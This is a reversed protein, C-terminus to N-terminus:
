DYATLTKPPTVLPDLLRRKCIDQSTKESASGAEQRKGGHVHQLQRVERLREQRDTPARTPCCFIAPPVLALGGGSWRLFATPVLLTAGLGTPPLLTAGSGLAALPGALDGLVASAHPSAEVAAGRPEADALVASDGPAVLAAAADGPPSAGTSGRGKRGIELSRHPRTM